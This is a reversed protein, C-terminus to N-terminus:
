RISKNFFMSAAIKIYYRTLEKSTFIPKFIYYYLRSKRIRIIELERDMMIKLLNLKKEPETSANAIHIAKYGSLFFSSFGAQRFQYCWLQDEGYMFFREDLKQGSLQSLAKKHFMLYAGSVWDCKMDYDGKFYQNVMLSSRTKYPLLYLIPRFLDLVENRISRFARANRQYSGDEYTLHISVASVNPRVSLFLASPSICDEILITDSNLLLIIDGKAHFIGLNNGRAFGINEESKILKIAPFRLLFNDPNDNPSANDVLIIEYPIGVTHEIVSEICQCTIDFTNYNIIIISVFM